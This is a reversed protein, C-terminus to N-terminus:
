TMDIDAILRTSKARQRTHAQPEEAWLYQSAWAWATGSLRVFRVEGAGGIVQTIVRRGDFVYSLEHNGPRLRLRILTDPLTEIASGNDAHVTIVNRGDGWSQRVVYVTLQTPDSRFQKAEADAKLSPVPESTCPGKKYRDVKSRYCYVSEVNLDPPPLTACGTALIGGVVLTTARIVILINM